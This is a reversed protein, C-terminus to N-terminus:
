QKKFRAMFAERDVVGALEPAPASAAQPAVVNARAAPAAQTAQLAALQAQLAAIQDAQTPGAQVAPAAVPAAQPAVPALEAVPAPAPPLAPATYSRGPSAERKEGLALIADVDEDEGSCTTLLKIQEYSISRLMSGLDQCEKLAQMAEADTLPAMKVTRSVRGDAGRVTEYEVDVTDEAELQKGTRTFRFWVGQNLELAEIGDEALLQTIKAELKKKTKNSIALVGYSGDLLKINMHWKRDCNHDQLWDSIPKAIEKIEEPSHGKAKSAAKLATEEDKRQKSLDCEPCDQLVMKTRYDTDEICKFPRHTPKSRDKENVGKYGFHTGQYVAWKGSEALSKMPPLIRCTFTIPEGQKGSQLKYTKTFSGGGYKPKGFGPVM